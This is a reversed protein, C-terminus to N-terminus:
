LLNARKPNSRRLWIQSFLAFIVILSFLPMMPTCPIIAPLTKQTHISGVQDISSISLRYCDIVISPLRYCNISQYRFDIVLRYGFFNHKKLQWRNNDIKMSQWRNDDIEMNKPHDFPFYICPSISHFSIVYRDCIKGCLVRPLFWTFCWVHDMSCNLIGRSKNRM